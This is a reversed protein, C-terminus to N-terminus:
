EQEWQTQVNRRRRLGLYGSVAGVVACIAATAAAYQLAFALALDQAVPLGQLLGSAVALGAVMGLGLGALAARLPRALRSGYPIVALAAAPLSILPSHALATPVYGLAMFGVISWAAIRVLRARRGSAPSTPSAIM